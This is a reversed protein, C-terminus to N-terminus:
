LSTDMEIEAMVPYHDSGLHEVTHITKVYLGDSLLLQDIPLKFSSILPLKDKLEFSWRVGGVVRTHSLSAIKHVIHSWTAANFDGSIIAPAKIHSFFPALQSVQTYQGYPYPWHLHVSAVTLVKKDIQVKQMMLGGGKICVSSNKLIPYKSLIAVGGVVPYFPCYSQYPYENKLAMLEKQHAPTVEQLTVIHPQYERLFAKVEKLKNNRFSMNFQMHKILIMKDPDKQHPTLDHYPRIVSYLYVGLAISSLLYLYRKRKTHLLSIGLGLVMAIFMLHLRFHSISDFLPSFSNLYGLLILIVTVAFLLILIWMTLTKFKKM